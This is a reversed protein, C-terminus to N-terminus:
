AKGSRTINIGSLVLAAIGAALAALGEAEREFMGPLPAPNSKVFFRRDDELTVVEARNICGGSAPSSSAIRDPTGTARAGTAAGILEEVAASLAADM